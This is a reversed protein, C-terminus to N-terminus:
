EIDNFQLMGFFFVGKMDQLYSERDDKEPFLSPRSWLFYFADLITQEYSKM